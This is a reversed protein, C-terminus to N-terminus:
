KKDVETTEVQVQRRQLWAVGILDVIGVWLRNHFGYKSSGKIRARHHVEVIDVRGGDRQILAPLFRHVHDFRPLALFADRKFLKLGCGTDPTRDHLIRSRIANAGRSSFRKLWNDNRKKRYGAYMVAVQEDSRELAQDHVALLRPIDAPDNQGDGDLTAIWESRAYRVGTIIAASQGANNIHRIVRLRPSKQAVAQLKELTGDTSGDDVFLMEFDCVGELAQGIEDHLLEINEVENYVPVVVSLDM